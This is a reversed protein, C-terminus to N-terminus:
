RQTKKLECILALFYLFVDRGAKKYCAYKRNFINTANNEPILRPIDERQLLPVTETLSEVSHAVGVLVNM